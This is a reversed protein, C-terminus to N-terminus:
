NDSEKGAKMGACFAEFSKTDDSLNKRLADACHELIEFRRPRDQKAVTGVCGGIFAHSFAAAMIDVADSETIQGKAAEDEVWAKVCELLEFTLRAKAGVRPDPNSKCKEVAALFPNDKLADVIKKSM